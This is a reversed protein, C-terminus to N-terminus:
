VEELSEFLSSNEERGIKIIKKVIKSKGLISTGVMGESVFSVRNGDITYNFYILDMEIEKQGEFTIIFYSGLFEVVKEVYDTGFDKSIKIQKKFFM